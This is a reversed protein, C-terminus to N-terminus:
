INTNGKLKMVPVNLDRRLFVFFLVFCFVLRGLIMELSCLGRRQNKRIDFESTGM